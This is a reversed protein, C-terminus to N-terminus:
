GQPMLSVPSSEISEIDDRPISVLKDYQDRILVASDTRRQLTGSVIRGSNRVIVMTEYGQKIASSPQLISELLSDPTMYAGVSTLDPGLKGGSGDVVHCTACALEKRAFVAAGREASGVRNVDALLTQREEQPLERDIGRLDGSETLTDILSTLELGSALTASIGASAITGPLKIDALAKALADPGDKHAVFAEFVPVADEPRDLDALMRAALDASQQPQEGAWASIAATRLPVSESAAMENLTEFAGISALARTASTRDNVTADSDAALSILQAKASVVKWRGVLSAAAARVEVDQHQLLKAVMQGDAPVHRNTVGGGAVAPLLSPQQMAIKLALQLEDPGGLASITRLASARDEGQIKGDRVLAVLPEMAQRNTSASLAFAIHEVKGGFVPKGSQLAPLWRDQTERAALWLAYDLERDVPFDLARMALNAAPLTGVHRLASVAELRVRPHDDEVAQALMELAGPLQSFWVSVMRVGAARVRHDRSALVETLLTENPIQLAGHLWLAELRLHESDSDGGDLATWGALAAVVEKPERSALERKSQERTWAEPAKLHDLLEGIEADHIDPPELTASEKATLRWIRGHSKDRRPHHFDVEGHDIIPNYWDVIYIAGDPGMKIDVPRFSRHGSHLVTEVEEATYGSGHEQIEYRVTRNARFDNALLSGNWRKPIHRGSVFEAATNKPKGPILGELVREAGVASPFAAGDFVFHPGAGGAGDTAFSQGWRDFAHGWPNVMGRAFVELSESEPRFRWIGSGNLRRGGWPTEVFSNIYISQTFYLEGWPAFRLGHIMHHVDANGFGSYVVRRADARDDGDHDALFLLETASCVYAGGQVPMVSHPVLLGDAFVTSKDAVGDDDTDELIVICDNPEKGPKIHPYTSSTSVWARGRTDWNLNIPNAIMPNAAFLNVEFGDAVKLAALEADIDPPPIEKPVEHDPYNRPPRWADIREMSYRHMQPRRLRAILEEKERVLREFERMEHALHGMEHRRFLFIYAKNLPRLRYGALKNKEIITQRLRAAQQFNPSAAPRVGQSWTEADAEALTEGNIKLRHAHEADEVRVRDVRLEDSTVDFRLGRDTKVVDDVRGGTCSIVEGENSIVIEHTPHPSLGLGKMVLDAMARYGPENLHIGNETLPAAAPDKSVLEEYLSIFACDREEALTKLFDSTNKLRANREEVDPIGDRQEQPPPGLLVLTAGTEELADLLQRYGRQFREFEEDTEYFATETGYGVIVASPQADDVHQLLTRFGFGHEASPPKWSRTNHDSGFESRATGFVDDAPWGLNRFTM